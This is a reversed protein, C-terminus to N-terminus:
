KNTRLKAENEVLKDLYISKEFIEKRTVIKKEVLVEIISTIILTNKYDVEKLHSLENLFDSINRM